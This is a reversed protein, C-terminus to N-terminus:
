WDHISKTHVASMCHPSGPAITYHNRGVVGTVLSCGNVVRVCEDPPWLYHIDDAASALTLRSKRKSNFGYGALGVRLQTSPYISYVCTCVFVCM